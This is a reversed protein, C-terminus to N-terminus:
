PAGLVWLWRPLSLWCSERRRGARGRSSPARTSLELPNGSCQSREVACSKWTACRGRRRDVQDFRQDLPRGRSAWPTSFPVELPHTALRGTGTRRPPHARGGLLGPRSSRAQCGGRLPSAMDRGSAEGYGLARLARRGGSGAWPSHENRGAASAAAVVLRLVPHHRDGLLDCGRLRCREVSATAAPSACARNAACACVGQVRLRVGRLPRLESVVLLGCCLAQHMVLLGCRSAVL